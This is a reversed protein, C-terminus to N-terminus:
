QPVRSSGEAPRHGHGAETCSVTGGHGEGELVRSASPPLPPNLNEQRVQILEATELTLAWPWTERGDGFGAKEGVCRTGAESLQPSTVEGASPLRRQGQCMPCTMTGEKEVASLVM